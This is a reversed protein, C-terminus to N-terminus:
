AQHADNRVRPESLAEQIAEDATLHAIEQAELEARQSEREVRQEEAVRAAENAAKAWEAHTRLRSVYGRGTRQAACAAETQVAMAAQENDKRRRFAEARAESSRWSCQVVVASREETAQQREAQEKLARARQEAEERARAAAEERAIRDRMRWGLEFRANYSRYACQITIAAREERRLSDAMRRRQTDRAKRRAKVADKAQVRRALQQIKLASVDLVVASDRAAKARHQARRRELMWAKMFRASYCRYACQIKTAAVARRRAETSIVSQTEQRSVEAARAEAAEIERIQVQQRAHARVARRTALERRALHQRFACQITVAAKRRRAKHRKELEYENQPLAVPMPASVNVVESISATSTTEEGAAPTEPEFHVHHDQAAFSPEQRLARPASEETEAPHPHEDIVAAQSDAPKQAIAEHDHVMDPDTARELEPEPLIRSQGEAIGAQFSVHHPESTPSGDHRLAPAAAHVEAAPLESPAAVPNTADDSSSSPEDPKQTIAEHDHVMDPDTATDLAPEPLIRSQGDNEGAQFSVHHVEELKSGEHRLAPPAPEAEAASLQPARVVEDVVEASSPEDPKQAIAEHDHVMDPDTATDLEPEPLIRSQGDNEGAQFRVHHELRPTATTVKAEEHETTASTSNHVTIRAMYGHGVRQATEAAYRCEQAQASVAAVADTEANSRPAGKTPSTQTSTHPTFARAIRTAAYDREQQVSATALAELEAARSTTASSAAAQVLFGAITHAAFDREQAKAAAAAAEKAARRERAIRRAGEVQIRARAWRTVLAAAHTVEQKAAAAEAKVRSARARRALQAREIIRRGFRQLIRAAATAEQRAVVPAVRVSQKVFRMAVTRARAAVVPAFRNQIIRAATQREQSQPTTGDPLRQRRLAAAHTAIAAQQRARDVAVLSAAWQQLMRVAAEVEQARADRDRRSATARATSSLRRKTHVVRRFFGVIRRVAVATTLRPVVAQPPQLTATEVVSPEAAVSPIVDAERQASDVVTETPAAVAEIPEDYVVATVDDSPGRFSGYEDQAPLAQPAPLVAAEVGPTSTSPQNADVNRAPEVAVVDEVVPAPLSEDVSTAAIPAEVAAPTPMAADSLDLRQAVHSDDYPQAAPQEPVAPAQDARFAEVALAVPSEDLVPQAFSERVLKERYLAKHRRRGLHGRVVRQVQIATLHLLTMMRFRQRGLHGRALAQIKIAASDRAQAVEDDVAKATELAARAAQRDAEERDARMAEVTVKADYMRWGNQIVVAAAEARQLHAMWSADVLEHRRANARRRGATGRWVAQIRTAAYRRLAMDSAARRTNCGRFWAQLKITKAMLTPNYLPNQRVCYGRWRKQVMVAARDRADLIVIRVAKRARYGRYVRQVAIACDRVYRLMDVFRRAAYARYTRQIAIAAHQRFRVAGIHTRTSIGRQLAQLKRAAHVQERLRRVQIKALFQRATSQLKVAAKHQRLKAKVFCRAVYARYASQIKTAAATEAEHSNRAAPQDRLWADEEAIIMQKEEHETTLGRLHAAEDASLRSEGNPATAIEHQRRAEADLVAQARDVREKPLDKLAVDRGGPAPGRRLPPLVGKGAADARRPDLLPNGAVSFDLLLRLRSNALFFLDSNMKHLYSVGKWLYPQTESRLVERWRLVADVVDLSANRFPSVLAILERHARDKELTNAGYRETLEQMLYLFGERVEIAREVHLAATREDVLRQIEANIIVVGESTNNAFHQHAFAVREADPVAMEDWLRTLRQRAKAGLAEISASPLQEVAGQNRGQQISAGSPATLLLEPHPAAGRFSTPDSTGPRPAEPLLDGPGGWLRRRQAPPLPALQGAVNKVGQQTRREANRRRMAFKCFRDNVADYKPIGPATSFSGDWQRGSARSADTGSLRSVYNTDGTIEKLLDLGKRNGSM